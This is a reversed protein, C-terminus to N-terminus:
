TEQLNESLIPESDDADRLVPFKQRFAQLRDLDLPVTIASEVDTPAQAMPRGYADIVTSHGCYLCDPDAGVRNVGVMYCQNEIARARLLTDWANIRSTPWNAVYIAADYDQHNRSFVPFRLDYCVQLLFRWGRFSVVTRFTGPTFHEQEGGYSFLHHKDYTTTTGDPCVFFCRNFYHGDQEVIISGCLAADREAAMAQMWAQTRGGEPEALQQPNVAFGTSFMEPLVLLDAPEQRRILDSARRLNAEVDAWAPNMQLITVKM